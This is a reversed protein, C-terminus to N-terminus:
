HDTELGLSGGAFSGDVYLQGDIRVADAKAPGAAAVRAIEAITLEPTARTGFYRLDRTRVNYAVTRLPFDTSGVSMHWLRRDFLQELAEAKRLGGFGRLASVAFRPVGTWQIGLHREPRWDLALEAMQEATLGGAWMSAWLVTASCATIAAPRIGAEEFGRAVGVLAVGGAPAIVGIRKGELAEVPRSALPPFVEVGRTRTPRDVIPLPLLAERTTLLASLDLRAM